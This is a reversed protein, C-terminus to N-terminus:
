ERILDKIQKKYTEEYGPKYGQHIYRVNGNRDVIVTTPMANVDYLKSLTNQTDYLIPFSVPVDRLYTKAKSSDQEVNIGLIVFGLKSYKKYIDDLLPMEQRCPGCWSAWFNVLVVQGRLEKLRINKGSINPLAFDPAPQGPAAAQLPVSIAAMMVLGLVLYPFWKM